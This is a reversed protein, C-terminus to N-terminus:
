IKVKLEARNEWVKEFAKFIDDLDSRSMSSDIMSTHVLEDKHLREVVPCSGEAYSINSEEEILTFPYGKSGFAIRNQFLPLMYLPKVYGYGIMPGETERSERFTLEARVANMFTNRDVGACEHNYKMTFIYHSNESFERDLQGSLMPLQSLLAHLYKANDRRKSVENTLKDLQINAIAAHIESMRYNFGVMNVLDTEGKAGVVSEAHNRILRIRNALEDDDTVVVGGEGCHIHKHYNLSYLRIDGLTGAFKGDYKAGPGQAVDEIIKLNYRKAIEKIEKAAYPQGFLDVAMIAKTRKTIKKEIELPDICYFDSEVDAFVPIAGYILPAMVTASM